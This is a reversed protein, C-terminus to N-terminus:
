DGAYLMEKYTTKAEAESVGVIRHNIEFQSLHRFSPNLNLRVIRYWVKKPPVKFVRGVCLCEFYHGASAHRPNLEHPVAFFYLDRDSDNRVILVAPSSAAWKATIPQSLPKLGASEEISSVIKTESIYSEKEPKVSFLGIKFPFKEYTWTIRVKSSNTAAYVARSLTLSIAISAVAAFVRAPNM